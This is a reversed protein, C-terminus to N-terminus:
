PRRAKAAAKQAKIQDITLRPGSPASRIPQHAGGIAAGIMAAAAVNGALCDLFDNDPGGPKVFWEDVTRGTRESTKRDRYEATLHDALMRHVSKDKGFISLSEPLGPEVSLRAHVFSKASNSDIHCLRVGREVTALPLHWCFGAKDGIKKGEGILRTSSAGFYDGKSPLISERGQRHQQRVFEYVWKAQYGSDILLRSIRMGEGNERKWPEDLLRSTLRKLGEHLQGEESPIGTAKALTRSADRKTFYARGQDPWVGYDVIWGTFDERWACVMWFLIEAQVDIFGTMTAAQHPVVGRPVNSLRSVVIDATLEVVNGLDAPLPDNQYEAFFAQRDQFFLNMAHQLADLEDDAFREPWAVISGEQLAEHHQLYYLTADDAARRKDGDAGQPNYNNRIERYEEWSPEEPKKPDSELKAPFAYLMKTRSSDWEPHKEHSLINDIADGRCIVTCPMIGAIKKGPGALGIVVAALIKEIKANGAPSGASEDTQVDDPLVLSPRQGNINFGRVRGTIGTVHITAGAGPAQGIRRGDIWNGPPVTPYTIFKGGWHIKTKDDGCRQGGQRKSEGELALIPYVIEPFDEALEPFLGPEYGIFTGDDDRIITASSELYFRIGDLLEHAADSTAGIMLVFKRHGYITAWLGTGKTRETKGDGRPAAQAFLGSYLVAQQAKGLASIHDQCFPKPFAHYLYTRLFLPLNKQCALRRAWNKVQPIPGIDQADRTEARRRGRM